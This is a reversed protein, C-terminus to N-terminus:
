RQRNSEVLGGIDIKNAMLSYTWLNRGDCSRTWGFYSMLTNINLSPSRLKRKMNLAISKRLLTYDKFFRFGVFDLGRKYTMFVQYNSKIKLNLSRLQARINELCKHLFNKSNHLLVMDDCYRYYHKVKMTEKIKHDLESLFLNGFYQSIYNGIPVGNISDIIADLLWLTDKCKIKKRITEKLLANDISPYFKSIDIKLCYPLDEGRIAREVKKKVRHTGRGKISQYTDSILTSKWIPELVQMIAHHIIRDPYYPLKFNERDRGKDNKVFMTYPSNKFTKNALMEQIQKAYFEVNEDVMKVERYFAKGKRANHHALKINEIDCIKHYLNGYRKM